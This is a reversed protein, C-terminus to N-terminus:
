PCYAIPLLCNLVQVKVKARHALKRQTRQRVFDRAHLFFMEGFFLCKLFETLIATILFSTMCFCYLFQPVKAHPPSVVILDNRYQDLFVIDIFFSKCFGKGASLEAHFVPSAFLYVM